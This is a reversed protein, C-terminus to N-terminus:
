EHQEVRDRVGLVAQHQAVLAGIATARHELPQSVVDVLDGREDPHLIHEAKTGRVDAADLRDLTHDVQIWVVLAHGVAPGHQESGGTVQRAPHAPAGVELGQHGDCEGAEVFQQAVPM